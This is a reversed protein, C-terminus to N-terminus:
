PNNGRIAAANLIIETAERLSSVIHDPNSPNEDRYCLDIFVTACGVAKGAIIDSGRDGVMFSAACDIGLSRTARRLMGDKPKRCDCADGQAHFCAEIGDLPLAAQMQRHMAEVVDRSVLGNGVDPQNTAVVLLFGVDKLQRLCTAADPYLHFDEQRRPAFSRGDCFKPVVLVGDRDLFVAPRGPMEAVM